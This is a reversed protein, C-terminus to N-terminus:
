KPLPIAMLHLTIITTLVTKSLVVRVIRNMNKGMWGPLQAHTKDILPQLDVRCLRKYHLPLGLYRGPFM